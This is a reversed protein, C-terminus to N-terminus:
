AVEKMPRGRRRLDTGARLLLSRVRDPTMAAADAIAKISNGAEYEARLEAAIRDALLGDIRQHPTIHPVEILGGGYGRHVQGQPVIEDNAENGWASWGARRYRAFMELHPGPSAREILDYQEDPKRSHERKRTELMNVISRAPALTRM